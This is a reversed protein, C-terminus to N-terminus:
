ESTAGREPPTSQFRFGFAEEALPTGTAGREPPTSQFWLICLPGNGKQKDSGERPAHISVIIPEDIPENVPDSGERPAHISVTVTRVLPYPKCTTGSHPGKSCFFM